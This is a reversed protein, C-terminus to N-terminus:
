EQWTLWADCNVNAPATARIAPWTSGGGVSRTGPPFQYIFLGKNPDVYMSKFVVPSSPEVTFGTAATSRSANSIGSDTRAVAANVGSTGTSQVRTVDVQVPVAGATVGDFSIGFEVLQEIFYDSAEQLLILTQATAAVLAVARVNVTYLAM